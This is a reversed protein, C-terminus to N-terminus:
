GAKEIWNTELCRRLGMRARYLMVWSNTATIDMEKCLEETSLGDIERLTFLRALREPLRAMCRYFVDLFQKQELIHDQDIEWKRPAIRWSGNEKFLAEVSTQQLQEGDVPKERVSKRFHDIIKHKLIGFLWSKPSSKGKFSSRAQLAALFTEQVLDEALPEQRVRALAFRFLDDGYRDVWHEPDGLSHKPDATMRVRGNLCGNSREDDNITHWGSSKRGPGKSFRGGM